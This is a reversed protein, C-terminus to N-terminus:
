PKAPYLPLLPDSRDKLLGSFAFKLFSGAAIMAGVAMMTFASNRSREGDSKGPEPKGPEPSGPESKPPKYPDDSMGRM